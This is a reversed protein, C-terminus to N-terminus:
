LSLGVRYSMVFPSWNLDENAFNELIGYVVLFHNAHLHNRTADVTTKSAETILTHM